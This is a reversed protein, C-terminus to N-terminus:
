AIDFASRSPHRNVSSDGDVEGARALRGTSQPLLTNPSLTHGCRIEARGTSDVLPASALRYATNLMDEGAWIEQRQYYAGFEAFGADVEKGVIGQRLLQRKHPVRLALQDLRVDVVRHRAFHLKGLLHQQYALPPQPNIKVVGTLAIEFAPDEMGAVHNQQDLAPM